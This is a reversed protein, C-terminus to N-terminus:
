IVDNRQGFPIKYIKKTAITLQPKEGLLMEKRLVLNNVLVM